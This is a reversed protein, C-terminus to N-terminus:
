TLHVSSTKFYTPPENLDELNAIEKKEVIMKLAKEKLKAAGHLDGIVLFTLVNDVALIDCIADECIHKLRSMNYMEAAALLDGAFDSDDKLDKIDIKNKYISDLVAKLVSPKM